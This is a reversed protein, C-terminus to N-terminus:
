FKSLDLWFLNSLLGLESPITGTLKNSGVNICARLCVSKHSAKTTKCTILCAVLM